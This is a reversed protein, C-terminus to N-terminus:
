GGFTSLVGSPFHSQSAASLALSSVRKKIYSVRVIEYGEVCTVKVNDKFIYRDKKPDLVSNPIVSPPCTVAKFLCISVM